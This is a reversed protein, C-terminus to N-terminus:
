YTCTGFAYEITITCTLVLCIVQMDGFHHFLSCIVQLSLISLHKGRARSSRRDANPSSSATSGFNDNPVMGPGGGFFLRRDNYIQIFYLCVNNSNVNDKVVELLQFIILLPVLCFFFSFIRVSLLCQGLIRKNWVCVKKPKQFQVM